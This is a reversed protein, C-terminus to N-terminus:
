SIFSNWDHKCSGLIIAKGEQKNTRHFCIYSSWFTGWGGRFFGIGTQCKLNLLFKLQAERSLDNIFCQTHLLLIVSGSEELIGNHRFWCSSCGWSCCCQIRFGLCRSSCLGPKWFWFGKETWWNRQLRFAIEIGSFTILWTLIWRFLFSCLVQETFNKHM